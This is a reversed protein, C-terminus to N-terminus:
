LVQGADPFKDKLMNNIAKKIEGEVLSKMEPQLNQFVQAGNHIVELTHNGNLQIETPFNDFAKSLKEVNNGFKDMSSDLKRLSQTSIEIMPMGVSSDGSSSGAIIGGRNKHQVKNRNIRELNSRGISQVASKNLVFEGPTLMAPVTDSNGRGPVSGGANMGRTNALRRRLNRIEVSLERLEKNTDEFNFSEPLKSIAKALDRRKGFIRKLVEEGGVNRELSRRQDQASRLEQKQDKVTSRFADTIINNLEKVNFTGEETSAKGVGSQVLNRFEERVKPGFAENVRDVVSNVIEDKRGSPIFRKKQEERIARSSSGGGVFGEFLGQSGGAKQPVDIGLQQLVGKSPDIEKQIKLGEEVRRITKFSEVIPELNSRVTQFNAGTESQIQKAIDQFGQVKNFRAIKTNGTARIDEATSEQLNKKLGELFTDFKQQLNKLFAQNNNRLNVNTAVVAQEATKFAKDVRDALAKEEKSPEFLNDANKKGIQGEVIARLAEKGTEGRFAGGLEVNSMEKFFNVVRKRDEGRLGELSRQQRAQEALNVTRRTQRREKRDGSLFDITFDKKTQRKSRERNLEEQFAAARESADTLFELGRNLRDIRSKEDVISNQLKQRADVELGISNQQINQLRALEQQSEQLRGFIEGPKNAADADGGLIDRQRLRDLHAIARFDVEEGRNGARARIREERVDRLSLLNDTMAREAEIRQDLAQAFANFQTNFKDSADALPKAFKELGKGLQKITGEFDEELAKLINTDKAESGIIQKAQSVISDTIFKPINGMKELEDEFRQPFDGAEGLADSRAISTMISPLQKLAKAAATSENAFKQGARGFLNGAKSVEKQFVEIDSINSIRSLLESARSSLETTAGIGGQAFSSFNKINENFTEVSIAADGVSSLLNLQVRLRSSMEQQTRILKKNIKDQEKFTKIQEKFDANLEEIPTKTFTSFAKLVDKSVIQHFEELSSSALVAEDLFKRLQPIANEINGQLDERSSPDRTTELRNRLVSVGRRVNGAAERPSIEQESVKSLTDTFDDFKKEFDVKELAIRAEDVGQMFGVIGAAGGGAIAGGAGGVLGGAVTGIGPIVSGIGAGVAAGGLVGIGGTSVAKGVRTDRKFQERDASAGSRILDLESQARDQLFRGFQTLAISVVGIIAPLASLANSAIRTNRVLNKRSAIEKDIINLELKRSRLQKARLRTRDRGRASPADFHRQARNVREVQASRSALSQNVLRETANIRGSLPQGLNLKSLAFALIALQGIAGSIKSSFNQVNETAIGLEKAITESTSSLLFLGGLIGTPTGLRGLKGLGGGSKRTSSLSGGDQISGGVLGKGGGGLGRFFDRAGVGAGIVGITSLAPLLEGLSDAVSIFARSLDLAIDVMKRISTSQTLERLFAAFEERVKSIQNALSEQAKIADKTLSTTGEQAVRLADQATGFERVLPIVKSIQRFGGLEETIQSFKPDTTEIKKLATSLREIAKFPGVFTGEVKGFKEAEERTFRLNIGFDRLFNQTRNRQLRTFITRFGTAISQANERTTARVSTFLAILENLDGGAAAFAGGARRVAKTMDGSEVAFKSAVANISGLSSELEKAELRFQRLIAISGEGTSVIDDFTPALDSKALATLATSTDKASLGTQALIRSVEVLKSSSVGLGTSLRIIEDTLGSLGKTSTGTVQRIKILQEEFRVAESVGQKLASIFAFFITTAITFSGFRKITDATSAGLKEMSSSASKATKDVQTLNKNLDKTKKMERQKVDVNVPVKLGRLQKSIKERVAGVNTPARLQLQATLLFKSSM